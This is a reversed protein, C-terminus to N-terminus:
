EPVQEQGQTRLEGLDWAGPPPSLAPKTGVSSRGDAKPLESHPDQADWLSPYPRNGEPVARGPPQTPAPM